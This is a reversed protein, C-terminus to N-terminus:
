GVLCDKAAKLLTGVLDSRTANEKLNEQLKVLNKAEPSDGLQDIQSKIDEHLSDVQKKFEPAAMPEPPNDKINQFQSFNESDHHISAEISNNKEFHNQAEAQSLRPVSEKDPLLNGDNSFKKDEFLVVANHPTHPQDALKDVTLRYGDVGQSKLNEKLDDLFSTPLKRDEIANHIEEFFQKGSMKEPDIKVDSGELSSRAAEVFKADMTKNDLDILNADQVKGSIISGDNESLKRAAAGNAIQPDDTLYIGGGYDDSIVSSKSNIDNTVIEKPSYFRTENIAASDLKHFSQKPYNTDSLTEGIVPDTAIRKGELSQVLAANQIAEAHKPSVRGLFRNLGNSGIKVAGHLASFGAATGIAGVLADQVNYDRQEQKSNYAELPQTAINGLTGEVFTRGITQSITSEAAGIGLRAAIGAGAVVPLAASVAFGAGLELPDTAHALLNSGWKNTFGYWGDQPGANVRDQLEQRQMQNDYIKQAVTMNVPETFPQPMKPFKKNLEIPDLTPEESTQNKLLAMKATRALTYSATDLNALEWSAKQSEEGSLHFAEQNIAEVDPNLSSLLGQNSNEM